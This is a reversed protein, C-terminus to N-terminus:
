SKPRSLSNGPALLLWILETRSGLGMKRFVHVLHRKVTAESIGLKEAIAANRKGSLVGSVIEIERLTLEKELLLPNNRLAGISVKGPRSSAAPKRSGKGAKGGEDSALAVTVMLSHGKATRILMFQQRVRAMPTGAVAELHHEAGRTWPLEGTNLANLVVRRLEDLKTNARLAAPISEHLVIWVPVGLTKAASRGSIREMASNWGIITGDEDVLILGDMVLETWPSLSEPNPM